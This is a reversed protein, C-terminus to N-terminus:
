RCITKVITWDDASMIPEVHGGSYRRVLAAREEDPPHDSLFSPTSPMASMREFFHSLGAVDVHADRLRKLGDADAEKEQERTYRMNLLMRVADPGASKGGSFILQFAEVTSLRVLLGELVHRHRVHEIEHALVGALEEPSQAQQLLGDYVYIRGGLSAFANVTPGRIVEVELPFSRDGPEIPYLRRVITDFRARAPSHDGSGCAQNSFHDVYVAARKELSWPILNVLYPLGVAFAAAVAAALVLWALGKLQQHAASL